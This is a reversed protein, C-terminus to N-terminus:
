LVKMIGKIAQLCKEKAQAESESCRSSLVYKFTVNTMSSSAPWDYFGEADQILVKGSRVAQDALRKCTGGLGDCPGKGHGTEFYNWVPNSGHMEEHNAVFEFINKKEINVVQVTQGATSQIWPAM